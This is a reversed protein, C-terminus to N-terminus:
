RHCWFSILEGAATGSKTPYGGPFYALYGPMIEVIQGRMTIEGTGKLCLMLEESSPFMYPESAEGRSLTM